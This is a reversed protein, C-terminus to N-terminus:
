LLESKLWAPGFSIVTDIASRWDSNLPASYRAFQKERRVPIRNQAAHLIHKLQFARSWFYYAVSDRSISERGWETTGIM